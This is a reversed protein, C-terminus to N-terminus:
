DLFDAFTRSCGSRWRRGIELDCWLLFLMDNDSVLEEFCLEVVM